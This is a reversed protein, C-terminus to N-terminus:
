RVPIRFKATIRKLFHLGAAIPLAREKATWVILCLGVGGLLLNPVWMGILPPYLGVEGFVWAASLLFYYLLFFFMGLAIGFSRTSGHSQIGLPVALLGLVFCAVPLSFKKHFEMLAIYYANDKQPASDIYRMLEPISMEEEDKVRMRAGSFAKKLDLRMDYIDFHATHSTKDKLNVQNLTGNYLQLHYVSPDEEQLLRGRPAVITSVGRADRQDEIFVDILSNRKLDIKSVYLMVNEFTDNFKREKLGADLHAQAVEYTLSRFATKGWPSGFITMFATLLAGILCFLFAPPLLRYISMGSAKLVMIENDSSMRLFTLLIAMMIAMPIVFELRYPIAYVVFLIVKWLSVRYNVILKTIKLITAMLFVFIIFLLSILFPPFMERFMYRNVITNLSM